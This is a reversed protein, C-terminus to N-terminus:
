KTTIKKAWSRVYKYAASVRDPIYILKKKSTKNHIFVLILIVLFCFVLLQNLIIQSKGTIIELDERYATVKLSEPTKTALLGYPITIEKEYKSFPPFTQINELTIKKNELIVEPSIDTVSTAGYNQIEIRAKKSFIYFGPVFYYSIRIDTAPKEPLNGFDVLVDKQSETRLSSSGPAVPKEPDKGHIVFAFHRLDFKNFFDVGGTTSGWTPDVPIWTMKEKSWYEPWSHLIDAVMSLPELEPNQSYAYGNIERAPIGKARALAIFLDTFEMCLSNSPNNIASIAGLRAPNPRVRDYNYSLKNTVFNYIDEPTQLEDAIEKIVPDTSQWYTSPKTNALLNSPTPQTLKRPSAFIQVSGAVEIDLKKGGQVEFLAYWNGEDDVKINKPEPLISKYFMKQTSTDPPIAISM